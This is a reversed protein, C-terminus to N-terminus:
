STFYDNLPEFVYDTWGSLHKDAEIQNPFGTHEVLLETGAPHQKFHFTVLSHSAKKDWETPKWTYSLKRTKKDFLVVTGTVWGGFMTVSGENVPEIRGGGDCWEGIIGELTLADFVKAPSAYIVYSVSIAHVPPAGKKASM